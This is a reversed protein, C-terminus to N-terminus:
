ASQAATRRRLEEASVDEKHTAIYWVNGFPDKVGASRDGYPKDDPEAVSTAGADLARRYTSDVDPVYLYLQAPFLPFQGGGQGFMLISDGIRVEAHVRGEGLDHFELEKADFARRAFAIFERANSLVLYPTISHYGDPKWNAAM